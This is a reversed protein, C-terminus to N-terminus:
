IVNSETEETGITKQRLQLVLDGYSKFVGRITDEMEALDESGYREAFDENKWYFLFLIRGLRDLSKMLEPVYSDVIAATDYIKALGGISSHDFIQKQGANAAQEALGSAQLDMASEGGLNFGPRMTNQPPVVGTMQGRVYQTQSPLTSIGTFEDQGMSLPSEPPMFVGVMPSQALKV